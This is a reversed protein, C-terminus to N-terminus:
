QAAWISIIYLGDFAVGTLAKSVALERWGKSRFNDAFDANIEQHRKALRSALDTMENSALTQALINVLYQPTPRSEDTMREMEVTLDFGEFTMQKVQLYALSLRNLYVLLQTHGSYIPPLNPSCDTILLQGQMFKARFTLHQNLSM